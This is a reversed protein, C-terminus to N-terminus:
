AAGDLAGERTQPPYCLGADACGQWGLRVSAEGGPPVILELSGRYVAQDGFFEDSHPEGAPLPPQREAPLGDFKLRQQYLYYGPAIQWHLRTAGSEEPSVTLAFAEDVPLFDTQASAGFLGGAPLALGPALLFLCFLLARM